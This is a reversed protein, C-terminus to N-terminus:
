TFIFGSIYREENGEKQKIKYTAGNEMTQNFDSIKPLDEETKIRNKYHFAMLKLQREGQETLELNIHNLNYKSGEEVEFNSLIKPLLLSFFQPFIQRITEFQSHHINQNIEESILSIKM